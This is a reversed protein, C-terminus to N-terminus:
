KIVNNKINLAALPAVVAIANVLQKKRLAKYFIFAALFVILTTIIIEM